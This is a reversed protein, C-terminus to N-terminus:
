GFGLGSLGNPMETDRVLFEGTRKLAGVRPDPGRPEHRGCLAERAGQGSQVASHHLVELRGFLVGLISAAAVEAPLTATLTSDVLAPTPRLRWSALGSNAHKELPGFIAIGTCESAPAPSPPAPSTPSSRARCRGTRASQPSFTLSFTRRILPTFTPPRAAISSCDAGRQLARYDVGSRLLAQTLTDMPEVSAVMKENFVAVRSLGPERADRRSEGSAGSVFRIATPDAAFMQENGDMFAYHHRCGM